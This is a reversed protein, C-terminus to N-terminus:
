GIQTLSAIQQLRSLFGTRENLISHIARAATAPWAQVRAHLEAPIVPISRAAEQLAGLPLQHQSALQEIRATEEAPNPAQWYFQGTLFLGIQEERDYIPMGTYNLGAHCTFYRGGAASQRAFTQWSQQCAAAGGPSSLLMRCLACPNSIETLPRGQMDVILASIQGVESFLNQITQACHTPFSTDAPVLVPVPAAIEERGLLREVERRPFRWQQGIKVGKLRGDNLMRYVTIRDVKLLEQVQRTTLLTDNM